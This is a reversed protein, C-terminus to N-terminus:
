PATPMACMSFACMPTGPRPRRRSSPSATSPRSWAFCVPSCRRNPSANNSSTIRFRMGSNACNKPFTPSMGPTSRPWISSAAHSNVSSRGTARPSPGPRPPWKACSLSSMPSSLEEQVTLFRAKKEASLEAGGLRFDRLENELSKQQAGSLSAYDPGSRLAKYKAYLTENQSIETWYQTVVPLMDNYTERLEPSNLVANLHGIVGWARSLRENVNDLPTVVRDWAPVSTYAAVTEVVGRAEAILADVAPKVHTANVAAFKPLGSLDLLPTNMIMETWETSENCSPAGARLM